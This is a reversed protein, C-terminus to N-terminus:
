HPREHGPSAGPFMPTETPPLDMSHSLYCPRWCRYHFHWHLAHRLQLGALSSGNLRSPYDRDLTRTYYSPVRPPTYSTNYNRAYHTNLATYSFRGMTGNRAAKYPSQFLVHTSKWSKKM